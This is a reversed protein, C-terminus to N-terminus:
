GDSLLCAARIPAAAVDASLLTLRSPPGSQIRADQHAFTLSVPLARILGAGLLVVGGIYGLALCRPASPEHDHARKEPSENFDLHPPQRSSWILSSDFNWILSTELGLDPQVPDLTYFADPV